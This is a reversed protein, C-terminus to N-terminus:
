APVERREEEELRLSIWALFHMNVSNTLTDTEPLDRKFRGRYLWKAYHYSVEERLWGIDMRSFDFEPNLVSERGYKADHEKFKQLMDEKFEDLWDELTKM